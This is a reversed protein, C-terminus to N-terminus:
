EVLTPPMPGGHRFYAVTERTPRVPLDIGATALLSRGWAGATVVCVGARLTEDGRRVVVSGDDPALAEVRWRERVEVGREIALRAQVAVAREAAIVGADPQWLLSADGFFRLRPWRRAATAGDLLECAAGRAELAGANLDIGDGADLGGTTTLLTEGGDSELTRWLGLAEQAMEVYVEDRYSLRFIRSAGHSSGRLHGLRFQELVVVSSGSRALWRAASTGMVGAGVVVVDVEKM